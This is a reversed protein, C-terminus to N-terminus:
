GGLQVWGADHRSMATEVGRGEIKDHAYPCELVNTEENGTERRAEGLGRNDTERTNANANTEMNLRAGIM